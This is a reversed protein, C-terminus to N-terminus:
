KGTHVMDYESVGVWDIRRGIQPEIEQLFAQIKPTISKKTRAEHDIYDLHNMVVMTPLNAKIARRTMAPDFRGVRRTKKTVTTIEHLQDKYGSEATVQAWDIEDKLPGSDGAVRIPYSRLVLIVEVVALPSVGAMSLFASAITDQSTVKPYDPSHFVSLGYGQTGEIIFDDDDHRDDSWAWLMEKTDSINVGLAKLQPVYDRVLTAKGNRSLRELLAAGTGSCTSGISKDMMAAREAEIHGPLLMTALPDIYVSAPDIKYTDLEYKLIDPNVLAGSAVINISGPIHSTSPLQKYVFKRGDPYQTIHGANLGGVKVGKNIGMRNAHWSVVKGKGCSGYGGDVVVVAGM